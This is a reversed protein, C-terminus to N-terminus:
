ISATTAIFARVNYTPNHIIHGHWDEAPAIVVSGQTIWKNTNMNIIARSPSLKQVNCIGPEFVIADRGWDVSDVKSHFPDPDQVVEANLAVGRDDGLVSFVDGQYIYSGSIRFSDGHAYQHRTVQFEM